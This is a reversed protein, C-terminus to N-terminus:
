RVLHAIRQDPEVHAALDGREVAPRPPDSSSIAAHPTSATLATIFPEIACAARFARPLAQALQGVALPALRLVDVVVAVLRLDVLDDARQRLSAVPEVKSKAPVLGFARPSM